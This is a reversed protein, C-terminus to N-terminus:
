LQSERSLRPSSNRIRSIHSLGGIVYIFGTRSYRFLLPSTEALIPFSLLCSGDDGIISIVATNTLNGTLTEPLITAQGYTYAIGNNNHLSGAVGRSLELM